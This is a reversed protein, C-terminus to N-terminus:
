RGRGVGVVLRGAATIALLLEPNHFTIRKGASISSYPGEDIGQCWEMFTARTFGTAMTPLALGIDM